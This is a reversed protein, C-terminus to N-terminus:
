SSPWALMTRYAVSNSCGLDDHAATQM